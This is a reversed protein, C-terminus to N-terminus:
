ALASQRLMGNELAIGCMESLCYIYGEIMAASARLFNRRWEPSEDEVDMAATLDGRLIEALEFYNDVAKTLQETKAVNSDM